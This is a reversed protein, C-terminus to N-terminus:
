VSDEISSANNNPKYVYYLSVLQIKKNRLANKIFFHDEKKFHSLKTSFIKTHPYQPHGCYGLELFNYKGPYDNRDMECELQQLSLRDLKSNLLKQFLFSVFTPKQTENNFLKNDAEINVDCRTKM